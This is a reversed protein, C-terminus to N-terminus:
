VRDYFKIYENLGFGMLLAIIFLLLFLIFKSKFSVPPKHLPQIDKDLKRAKLQLENALALDKKVGAGNFYLMALEHLANADDGAQEFEEIAKVVNKKIGKIPSLPSLAYGLFYHAPKYDLAIAKDLLTLAYAKGMPVDDDTLLYNAYALMAVPSNYTEVAEHFLQLAAQKTGIKEGVKIYFHALFCMAPVYGMASSMMLYQMSQMVESQVHSYTIGIAFASQPDIEETDPYPGVIFSEWLGKEQKNITIILQNERFTHRMSQVTDLLEGKIIPLIGPAEVRIAAHSKHLEVRINSKDFGEPITVQITINREQDNLNYEYMKALEPEIKMQAKSGLIQDEEEPNFDMNNPFQM